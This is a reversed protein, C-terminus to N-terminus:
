EQDPNWKLHLPDSLLSIACNRQMTTADQFSICFQRMLICNVSLPLFTDAQDFCITIPLTCIHIEQCEMYSPTELISM